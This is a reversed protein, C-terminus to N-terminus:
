APLKRSRIPKRLDQAILRHVVDANKEHIGAIPIDALQFHAACAHADQQVVRLKKVASDRDAIDIRMVVLSDPTAKRGLVRHPTM